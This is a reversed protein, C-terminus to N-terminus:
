SAKIYNQYFKNQFIRYRNKRFRYEPVNWFNGFGKSIGPFTRNVFFFRKPIGSDKGYYFRFLNGSSKRVYVTVRFEQPFGLWIRSSTNKLLVQINLLGIGLSSGWNNTRFICHITTASSLVKSDWSWATIFVKIDRTTYIRLNFIGVTFILILRDLNHTDLEFPELEPYVTCDSLDHM